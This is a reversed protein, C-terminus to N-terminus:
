RAKRRRTGLILVITAMLVVVFPMIGFEPIPTPPETTLPYYDKAGASGSINYPEDVIGYPPNVDPATWDSWYNGYGDTSNWWNNTGEDYAQVHGSDYTSGAGNNGIFTNNFAINYSSVDYIYMGYQLNDCLQNRLMVNGSSGRIQIGWRNNSSCNNSDLTNNTSYGIYAGDYGNSIWDNSVLTNDRSSVVDIGNYNNWCCRNSVLTNNNSSQGLIIGDNGNASCNNGVLTNNRSWRLEIGWEVNSCYNDNLTNNSANDFSIGDAYNATCNNYSLINHDSDELYIGESNGSCTNNNIVNNYSSYLGIGGYSDTCTNNVMCNNNSFEYLFIGDYEDSICTNNRLANNSSGELWIGYENNTCANNEFTGNTCNYTHIGDYIHGLTGDHVYCNRVTFHADTDQIWVGHASTANIDWDAIIYPDSATGSGGSVGNATTFEANGVISIPSHTAYFIRAPTRVPTESPHPGKDSGIQFMLGAVSGLTLVAILIMAFVMVKTSRNRKEGSRGALFDRDIMPMSYNGWDRLPNRHYLM